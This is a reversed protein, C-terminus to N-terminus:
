SDLLNRFQRLRMSSPGFEILIRSLYHTMPTCKMPNRSSTPAAVTCSSRTLVTSRCSQQFSKPLAAYLFGSYFSLSEQDFTMM